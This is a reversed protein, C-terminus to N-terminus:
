PKPKPKKEAKEDAAIAKEVLRRISESRTPVDPQNRRWSDLKKIWDLPAVFMLKQVAPALKRMRESLIM